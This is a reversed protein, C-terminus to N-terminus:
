TFITLSQKNDLLSILVCVRSTHPHKVFFGAMLHLSHCQQGM